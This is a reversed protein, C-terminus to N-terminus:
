RVPIAVVNSKRDGNILTVNISGSGALSKPIPGISIQNLGPYYYDDYIDIVSLSFGSVDATTKDRFMSRVGTAYLCLYVDGGSLDLPIPELTLPDYLTSVEVEGTPLVRTAYGMPVGTGQSNATFIGPAAETVQLPGSAIIDGNFKV